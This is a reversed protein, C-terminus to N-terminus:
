NQENTEGIYTAIIRCPANTPANAVGFGNGTLNSSTTLRALGTQIVIGERMSTARTGRGGDTGTFGAETWDSNDFIEARVNWDTAKTGKIPFDEVYRRNNWIPTGQNVPVIFQNGNLRTVGEILLSEIFNFPLKENEYKYTVGGDIIQYPDQLFALPNPLQAGKTARKKFISIGTFYCKNGSASFTQPNIYTTTTQAVFEGENYQAESLTNSLFIDSLNNATGIGLRGNQSSGGIDFTYMFKYTANVETAFGQSSIGASGGVQTLELRGNNADLTVNAVAVWNSTNVLDKGNSVLEVGSESYQNGDELDLIVRKDDASKKDYLGVSMPEDYFFDNGLKDVAIWKKGNPVSDAQITKTLTLMSNKFSGNLKSDIFSLNADVLNINSSDGPLDMYGNGDVDNTFTVQLLYTSNITNWNSNDTSIQIEGKNFTIPYSTGGTDIHDVQLYHDLSRRIDHEMWSSVGGVIRKFVAKAINRKNGYIDLVKVKLGLISSGDYEIVAHTESTRSTEMIFGTNASTINGSVGIIEIGVDLINISEGSSGTSGMTRNLSLVNGSQVSKTVVTWNTAANLRKVIVIEAAVGGGNPIVEGTAGSSTYFTLEKGSIPNYATIYRKGHKTVGWKLHTFLNQEFLYSEGENNIAVLTGLTVGTDTFATLSEVVSSEAHTADSNIDILVGRLGDYIFHQRATTTGKIKVQSIGKTLRIDGSEQIVGADNKIVGGIYGDVNAARDHWLNNGNFDATFDISEMGSTIIKSSPVNGLYVEQHFHKTRIINSIVASNPNLLGTKAISNPLTLLKNDMELSSYSDLITRKKNLEIDLNAKDYLETLKTKLTDTFHKLTSTESINSFDLSKLATVIKQLNNLSADDSALISQIATKWTTLSSADGFKVLDSSVNGGVISQAQNKFKLAENRSILAESAYKIVLATDLSVKSFDVRALIALLNKSTIGISSINFLDFGLNDKLTLKASILFNNNVQLDKIKFDILINSTDSTSVNEFFSFGTSTEISTFMTTLEATLTSSVFLAPSIYKEILLNGSVADLYHIDFSLTISQDPLSFLKELQILTSYKKVMDALANVNKMFDKNM